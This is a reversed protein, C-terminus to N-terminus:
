QMCLGVHWTDELKIWAHAPCTLRPLAACRDAAEQAEAMDVQVTQIVSRLKAMAAMADEKEFTVDKLEAQAQLACM